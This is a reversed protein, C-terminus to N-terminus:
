TSDHCTPRESAPPPKPFLYKTQQYRIAREMVEDMSERVVLREGTILTIFTDPRAEIYRILDANLVFPENDLRTLKIM